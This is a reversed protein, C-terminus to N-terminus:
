QPGDALGELVPAIELSLASRRAIAMEQVQDAVEFVLGALARIQDESSRGYPPRQGKRKAENLRQAIQNVNNGTRNLAASLAHLQEALEDDPVFLDSAIQILRRLAESRNAIDHRSLVAEFRRFEEDSLAVNIQRSRRGSDRRRETESRLAYYISRRSVGYTVALEEVSVGESRAKAIASREGQTLRRIGSM